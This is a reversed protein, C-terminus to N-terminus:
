LPIWVACQAKTASVLHFLDEAVNMIVSASTPM